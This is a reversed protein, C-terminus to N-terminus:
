GFCVKQIQHKPELPEFIGRATAHAIGSAAFNIDTQVEPELITSIVPTSNRLLITETEKDILYFWVDTGQPNEEM